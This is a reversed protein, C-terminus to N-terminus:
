LPGIPGFIPGPGPPHPIRPQFVPCLPVDDITATLVASGGGSVAVIQEGTLEYPNM